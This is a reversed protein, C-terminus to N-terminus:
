SIEADVMMNILQEVSVEPEWGLANKAKTSDGILLDVEAPRYFKPNIKVVVARTDRNLARENEASGEWDIFIGVREFAKEVFYRVTNTTGTAIVYEDAVDQQLMLHMAKVYDGAFGWDRKADINGLELCEQTGEKIKVVAQAIKRSVFEEGRLPSEHNFLIGCCAFLGYSERYNVTMSHAYQKAASYPSRPNFPTLETQPIAKVAGFLESTSAQYFRIAKNTQFIANLLNCPGAGDVDLTATPSNFSEKVFSQAALNYIENLNSHKRIVNLCSISDTIDMVEISLRPHEYCGLEKLRWFYYSADTSTRRHTGIVTYGLDLLHKALYAADQGAIGTILAKKSTVSQSEDDEIVSFVLMNAMVCVFCIFRVILNIRGFFFSFFKIIM